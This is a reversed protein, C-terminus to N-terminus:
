FSSCSGCAKQDCLKVKALALGGTTAAAPWLGSDPLNARPKSSPHVGGAGVVPPPWPLTPLEADQCLHNLSDPLLSRPMRLGLNKCGLYPLLSCFFSTPFPSSSDPLSLACLGSPSSPAVWSQSRSYFRYPFCALPKPSDPHGPRSLLVSPLCPLQLLGMNTKSELITAGGHQQHNESCFWRTPGRELLFVPLLCQAGPCVPTALKDSPHVTRVARRQGAGPSVQAEEGAM